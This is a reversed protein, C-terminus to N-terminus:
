DFDYVYTTDTRVDITDVDNEAINITKSFLQKSDTFTKAMITYNDKPLEYTTYTNSAINSLGKTEQDSIIVDEILQTGSYIVITSYYNNRVILKGSPQNDVIWHPIQLPIEPADSNLTREIPVQHGNISEKEVWGLEIESEKDNPNSYWYRYLIVYTGYDVGVIKESQDGPNLTAVKAGNKENLFVDVNYETGGSYIFKLTGSEVYPSEGTVNWTSRKSKATSNALKRKWRKFILKSDPENPVDPLDAYKYLQLDLTREDSNDVNILFDSESNPIKRLCAGDLYLLLAEGSGNQIVLNGENDVGDPPEVISDPKCMGFINLLGLLLLGYFNFKM